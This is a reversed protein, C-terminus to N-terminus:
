YVELSAEYFQVSLTWVIHAGPIVQISDSRISESDGIKEASLSAEIATAVQANWPVKFVSTANGAALGLRQRSAGLHLYVSADRFNHSVVEVIIDEVKASAEASPDDGLKALTPHGGCASILALMLASMPVVSARRM